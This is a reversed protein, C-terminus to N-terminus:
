TYPPPNSAQNSQAISEHPKEDPGLHITYQPTKKGERSRPWTEIIITIMEVRRPAARLWRSVERHIKKKRSLSETRLYIHLVQGDQFVDM